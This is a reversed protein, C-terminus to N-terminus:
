PQNKQTKLSKYRSRIVGPDSGPIVRARFVGKAGAKV